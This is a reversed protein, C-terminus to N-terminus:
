KQPVESWLRYDSQLADRIALTKMFVDNLIQDDQFSHAKSLLFTLLQNVAEMSRENGTTGALSVPTPRDAGDLIASSEQPPMTTPREASSKTLDFINFQLDTHGPYILFLL